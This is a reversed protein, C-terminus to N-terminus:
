RASGLQQVRCTGDRLVVALKSLSDTLEDIAQATSLDSKVFTGVTEVLQRAENQEGM